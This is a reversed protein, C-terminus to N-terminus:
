LLKSKLSQYKSRSIPLTKQNNLKIEYQYSISEVLDMNVIYSKHVREFNDPLLLLINQLSKGHLEMKDNALHLETYNGAGKLYQVDEIKILELKQHKSIALYKLPFKARYSPDVIRSLAKELRSQNFPKPIFDLVGFEFAEIAKDIYASIIITQFGKSVSDKLMEFGDKGNLNLDLFLLDIPHSQIFSHAASLTSKITLRGLQIQKSARVFREIRKALLPEDEVILVNIVM